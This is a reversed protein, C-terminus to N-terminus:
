AYWEKTKLSESTAKQQATPLNLFPLPPQAKKRQDVVLRSQNSFSGQIASISVTPSDAKMVEKSTATTVM